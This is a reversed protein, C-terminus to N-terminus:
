IGHMFKGGGDEITRVTPWIYRCSDLFGCFLSVSDHHVTPVVNDEQPPFAYHIELLWLLIYFFFFFLPFVDAEKITKLSNCLANIVTFVFRSEGCTM